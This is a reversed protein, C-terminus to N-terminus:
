GASGPTNCNSHLNHTRLLLLLGWASCVVCCCARALVGCLLLLLRAQSACLRRTHTDPVEVRIWEPVPATLQGATCRGSGVLHLQSLCGYDGYFRTCKM